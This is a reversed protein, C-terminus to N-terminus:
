LLVVRPGGPYRGLDPDTTYVEGAEAEILSALILADAMALAHGHAIRAARRLLAPETLWVVRCLQPLEEVLTEAAMKGIAGKLGQRDM